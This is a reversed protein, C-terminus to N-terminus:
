RGDVVTDCKSERVGPNSQVDQLMAIVDRLLHSVNCRGRKEAWGLSVLLV